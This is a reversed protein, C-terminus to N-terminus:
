VVGLVLQFSVFGAGATNSLYVVNLYIVSGDTLTVQYAVQEQRAKGSSGTSTHVNISKQEMSSVKRGALYAIMQAIPADSKGAVEPHMLAKADATRKEAMNVMMEEVKATAEADGAMIGSMNQTFNCATLSLVMVALLLISIMKKM